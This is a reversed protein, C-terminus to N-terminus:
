PGARWIVVSRVDSSLRASLGETAAYRELVAALEVVGSFSAAKKTLMPAETVLHVTTGDHHRVMKAVTQLPAAAHAPTLEFCRYSAPALRLARCLLQAPEPFPTWPGACQTWEEAWFLLRNTHLRLATFGQPLKTGIGEWAM